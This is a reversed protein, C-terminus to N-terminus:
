ESKNKKSKIQFLIEWHIHEWWTEFGSYISIDLLSLYFKNFTLVGPDPIHIGMEKISMRQENRALFFGTFFPFCVSGPSTKVYDAAGSLPLLIKRCGAVLDSLAKGGRLKLFLTGSVETLKTTTIPFGTFHFPQFSNKITKASLENDVPCLPVFGPLVLASIYGHQSFIDSRLTCIALEIDQPPSLVLIRFSKM